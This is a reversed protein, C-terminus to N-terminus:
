FHVYLLIEEECVILRTPVFVSMIYYRIIVVITVSFLIWNFMETRTMNGTQGWHRVLSHEMKPNQLIRTGFGLRTSRVSMLIGVVLFNGENWIWTGVVYFSRIVGLLVVQNCFWKLYLTYTNYLQWSWGMLVHVNILGVVAILSYM